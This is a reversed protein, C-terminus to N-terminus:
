FEDCFISSQNFLFFSLTSCWFNLYVCQLGFYFTVNKGYFPLLKTTIYNEVYHLSRGSATHDAYTLRRRGFPTEFEASGGIIQSCLWRLKKGSSENSEPVGRGSIHFSYDAECKIIDDMMILIEHIRIPFKFM